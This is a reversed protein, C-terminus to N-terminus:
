SSALKCVASVHLSKQLWLFCKRANELHLYLCVCVCVCVCMCVCVANLSITKGGQCRRTRWPETSLVPDHVTDRWTSCGLEGAPHQLLVPDGGPQCAHCPASLPRSLLLCFFSALPFILLASLCGLHSPSYLSQKSCARNSM